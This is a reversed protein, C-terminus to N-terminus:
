INKVSAIVATIELKTSDAFQTKVKLEVIRLGLTEEISTLFKLMSDLSTDKLQVEMWEEDTKEKDNTGMARVPSVKQVMAGYRTAESEIFSQLKFSDGRKGRLREYRQLDARQQALDKMLSQIREINKYNSGAENSVRSFLSSTEKVILVVLLLLMVGALTSVIMKERPNFAMWQARVKEQTEDFREITKEKFQRFKQIM